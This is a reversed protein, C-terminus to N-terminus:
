AEMLYSGDMILKLCMRIDETYMTITLTIPTSIYMTMLSYVGDRM